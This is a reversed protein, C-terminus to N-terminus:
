VGNGCSCLYSYGDLGCILSLHPDEWVFVVAVAMDCLFHSHTTNAHINCLVWFSYRFLLVVSLTPTVRVGDGACGLVCM